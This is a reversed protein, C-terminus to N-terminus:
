QGMRPQSRERTPNLTQPWSGLFLLFFGHRHSHSSWAMPPSPHASTPQPPTPHSPPTRTLNAAHHIATPSQNRLSIDQPELIDPLSSPSSSLNSSTEEGRSFSVTLSNCVMFQSFSDHAHIGSTARTSAAADLVSSLFSHPESFEHEPPGVNPHPPHHFESPECSHWGQTLLSGTSPSLSHTSCGEGPFGSPGPASRSTHLRGADPERSLMCDVEGEGEAGKGM